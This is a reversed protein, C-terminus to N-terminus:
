INLSKMIETSKKQKDKDSKEYSLKIEIIRLSTKESLFAIREFFSLLWLLTM